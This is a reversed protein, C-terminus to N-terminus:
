FASLIERQFGVQGMGVSPNREWGKGMRKWLAAPHCWGGQRCGTCLEMLAAEQPQQAGLLPCRESMPLLHGLPLAAQGEPHATLRAQCASPETSGERRTLRSVHLSGTTM